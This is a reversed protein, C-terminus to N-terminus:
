HFNNDVSQVSRGPFFSICLLRKQFLLMLYEYFCIWVTEFVKLHIAEMFCTKILRRILVNRNPEFRKPFPLLCAKGFHSPWVNPLDFPAVAFEIPIRPTDPFHSSRLHSQLPMFHPYFLPTPLNFVSSEFKSLRIFIPNTESM